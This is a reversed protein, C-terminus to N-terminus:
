DQREIAGVCTMIYRFGIKGLFKLSGLWSRSSDDFAEFDRFLRAPSGDSVVGRQTRKPLFWRWKRQGISATVPFMLSTRAITALLAIVSNLSFRSYPWSTLPSNDFAILIGVIAVMSGTAVLSTLLELRWWTFWSGPPRHGKTAMATSTPNIPIYQHHQPEHLADMESSELYSRTTSKLSSRYLNQAM